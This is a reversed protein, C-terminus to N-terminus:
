AKRHRQLDLHAMSCVDVLREYRQTLLTLQCVHLEGRAVLPEGWALKRREVVALDTEARADDGLSTCLPQERLACLTCTNRSACERRTLPQAKVHRAVKTDVQGKRGFGIFNLHGQSRLEGLMSQHVNRPSWRGPQTYSLSIDSSRHSGAPLMGDARLRRAGGPEM